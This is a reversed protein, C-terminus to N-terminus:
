RVPEVVLRGGGGDGEAGRVPGARDQFEGDCQEVDWVEKRLNLVFTRYHLAIHSNLKM